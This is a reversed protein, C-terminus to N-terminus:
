LAMTSDVTSHLLHKQHTTFLQTKKQKNEKELSRLYLVLNQQDNFTQFNLEFEEIRLTYLGNFNLRDLELIQLAREERM